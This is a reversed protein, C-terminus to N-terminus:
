KVRKGAVSPCMEYISAWIFFHLRGINIGPSHIKNSLWSYWMTANNVSIYATSQWSIISIHMEGHKSSCVFNFVSHPIDVNICLVGYFGWLNTSIFMIIRLMICFNNRTSRVTKSTSVMLNGLKWNSKCPKPEKLSIKLGLVWSGIGM